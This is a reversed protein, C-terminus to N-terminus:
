GSAGPGSPGPAAGPAADSAAGPAADPASPLAPAGIRKILVTAYSGRPLFFEVTMKKKGPYLDDDQTEPGSIWEPVALASREVGHVSVGSMQRVRLDQLAIGEATLVEDLAAQVDPDETRSDFGPVPLLGASLRALLPETLGEYFVFEGVNYKVRYTSLGEAACLAGVRRALIENFLYSQYANLVFVLFKRDMMSLSKRFARPNDALYELIRRYEGFALPLCERWRGWNEMASRKLKRTKQDDHKSPTLWLRVAEERRGLFMAKGMFGGGHRASGFRQEDYYNPVGWRSASQARSLFGDAERSGIERIVIRFRNGRVDKATAKRPAYGLFAARFNKEEVDAPRLGRCRVSLLQSTRGYRDKIGGVSLASAPVGLRRSLLSLLDFTDWEAKELRFVAYEDPTPSVPLETEEQVLFDEPKVKIKM